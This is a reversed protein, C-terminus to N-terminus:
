WAVHRVSQQESVVPTRERPRDLPVPSVDLAGVTSREEEVLQQRQGEFSLSLQEAHEIGTFDLAQALLSLAVHVGPGNCRNLLIHLVSHGTACQATIEVSSERANYNVQWGEAIAGLVHDGESPMKRRCTPLCEFRPSGRHESMMRPRTVHAFQAVRYLSCATQYLIARQWRASHTLRDSEPRWRSRTLPAHGLLREQRGERSLAQDGQTVQMSPVGLANRAIQTHTSGTEELLETTRTQGQPGESLECRERANAFTRTGV